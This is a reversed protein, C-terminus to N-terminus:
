AESRGDTISETLVGKTDSTEVVHHHHRQPSEKASRWSMVLSTQQVEKLKQVDIKTLV